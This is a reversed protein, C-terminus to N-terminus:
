NVATMREQYAKPRTKPHEPVDQDRIVELELPPHVTHLQLGDVNTLCTRTGQMEEPNEHYVHRARTNSRSCWPISVNEQYEHTSQIRPECEESVDQASEGPKM